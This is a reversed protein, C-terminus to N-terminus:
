RRPLTVVFETHDGEETEFTLAGGHSQVVIDYSLSLGLGAGEGAPKTTFFPDYIHERIAAPIGLGSDRVRIEVADASARTTVTVEPAVGRAKHAAHAAYLANTVLNVIVRGIEEPVARVEGVAEDLRVEVAARSPEAIQQGQVAAATYDRVLANLDVSRAEGARGRSHELMGRVIGDARRGHEKIRAVNQVLDSVIEDLYTAAGPDLRAGQRGLEARLEGGLDVSLEAFNNVFNLPNKIEHAIGSTLMGLSALKEKQVLRQQAEKLRDLALTLERTRERVRSELTDYLLANELSIAAQSSLIELVRRREATFAFAALNNELYLVGVLKQQRVVPTALVSRPRRAAIYPDGEFRGGDNAADGLVVSERTREVYRVISLACSREDLTAEPLVTADRGADPDLEIVRRDDGLLLLLGRQAGASELLTRMLRRVLDGLVIEGSIAQSAKMVSLLDLEATGTTGTITTSVAPTSHTAEGPAAVRKVLAGPHEAELARAKAVAGWRLWAHHAEVLYAEAVRPSDLGAYFRAALENALAEDNVFRHRRALAIARDYSERARATDGVTRAREADILAAWHALNEPAHEARRRLRDHAASARALLGRREGAGADRAVALAALATVAALMPDDYTGLAREALREAEGAHALAARADGFLYALRAKCVWLSAVGYHDAKAHMAAFLASEDCIAGTLVRPDPSLGMLNQAFQRHQTLREVSSPDGTRAMAQAFAAMERDLDALPLGAFLAHGCYLLASYCAYELDGTDLGTRYALLAPELTERLPRTAHEVFCHIQFIVKARVRRAEPREALRLALRGFRRGAPVDGLIATLALAYGAYGVASEPANGHRASLRVLEFILVPLAASASSYVASAIGVMVRMAALKQPDTMAPLDALAEVPKGLLAVRMRLLSAAVRARGPDLPLDVGLLRLVEVGVRLGDRHRGHNLYAQYRAEYAPVREEVARARRLVADVFGEMAPLDRALHAARAAGTFLALALDYRREWADAGALEIGARLHALAPAYAASAMARTGAALNLRALREREAAGEILARGLNLHNVVEFLREGRDLEAEVGADALLLRGVGLHLAPREAEPIRAYAAQQVRDHIFRYRATCPGEDVVSRYGADSPAVLGEDLAPALDLAVATRPRAAAVALTALDFTGGFCAALCLVRRCAEPLREIRAAMLAVVNDTSGVRRIADLDWGFGGRAADFVLLGEAHLTKLFQCLFFPNGATKELCLRALPEAEAEPRRVTDAVLRVVDEISLPRPSISVTPVGADAVARLTLAFPHAADVENDRYACVLLLHRAAPDTVLQEILRLSAADAWQVDDLVLVLPHREGAFAEVFDRFVLNFRNQAELPSLDPVEGPDGTILAVEPIVEVVLRANPGLADGLRRRWAAIEDDGGTLIQGVLGRLAQIFATYPIDRKFPDFKGATFHGRRAVIPKHVEHILSSKGIGSYGPVLVLSAAGEGAREFAALLAATEPERGYLREPIQFRDSRDDRGLAFPADEGRLHDDLCRQLDAALGATSQYRDEPAKALLKQVIAALAPPAPAGLPEPLRALHCHILELADDAVFPPRGAVLHYLTAGLSYLDTRYDTGRNMRGTQEPSIYALTGELARPGAAEPDERSLATSIGFDIIEVAGRGPPNPPTEAGGDHGICVINAPNLDKHIIRAAHVRGLAAAALLAVRLVAEVSFAGRARLRALSEGGADAFVIVATHRVEELALAEIVGPGALRRAIEFERRFRLLRAPSPYEDNLLKLVVPRGDELRRGRHISSQASEYIPAAVEYGPMGALANM